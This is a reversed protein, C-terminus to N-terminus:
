NSLAYLHTRTLVYLTGDHAVPNTYISTGMNIEALEEKAKGQKLIVMDGDEDGLYIKGDAVLPSGWVAAFSDYTWYHEGTLADLAYLFGSMDPMYVVGDAIAATSITRNFDEGARHWVAAMATVDGNQRTDIVWFHGFAEGGDPDQGVGIYVKDDYLVAMSVLSNRTGAGGLRWVSDKPNSDFKWLVKGTKPEFSYVWGDSSPFVLQGRGGMQAYSPSSLSSQLLKEDPAHEWVLKGSLRDIAVLAPAYPSTPTLEDEGVGNGTSVYIMDGVILPASAAGPRSRPSVGMEAVLDNIWVIDGDIDSTHKEGTYPGDNEGDRFGETDVAILESRNTLYYVRDGVATPTSRVGQLPWDNQRDRLKSHPLQWLFQGDAADFAMVVGRDGTLEPNRPEENNTGIFVKGRHIIPGAYSQSGVPQSWKVNTGTDIDWSDPLENQEPQAMNRTPGHGLM